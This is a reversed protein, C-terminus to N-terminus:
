QGLYLRVVDPDRLVDDTEGERFVTGLHLFVVWDALQRVLKLNHEIFLITRGEDALDRFCDSVHDVLGEELGACLEDFCMLKRDVALAQALMLLKQEGYSLQSALVGAHDELRCFALIARAAQEQTAIDVPVFTRLLSITLAEERPPRAALMVSELVTLSNFSRPHQFTRALGARSRLHASSRTIDVGDLVITGADPRILGSVINLLTSKGAGNSGILATVKGRRIEVSVGKLVEIGSFKKRLGNLELAAIM